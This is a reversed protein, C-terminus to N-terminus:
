AFTCVLHMIINKHTSADSYTLHPRTRESGSKHGLGDVVKLFFVQAAICSGKGRVDADASRVQTHCGVQGLGQWASGGEGGGARRSVENAWAMGTEAHGVTTTPRAFGSQGARGGSLLETGGTLTALRGASGTRGLAPELPNPVGSSLGSLSGAMRHAQSILLEDSKQLIQSGPRSPRLLLFYSVLAFSLAYATVPDLFAM